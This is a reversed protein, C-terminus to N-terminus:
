GHLIDGRTLASYLAMSDQTPAFGLAFVRLVSDRDLLRASILLRLLLVLRQFSQHSPLVRASFLSSQLMKQTTILIVLPERKVSDKLLVLPM